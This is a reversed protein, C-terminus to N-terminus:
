QRGIGGQIIRFKKGSSASKEIKFKALRSQNYKLSAEHKKILDKCHGICGQYHSMFWESSSRETISKKYNKILEKDHKIKAEYFAICSEIYNTQDGM